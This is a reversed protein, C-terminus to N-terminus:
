WILLFSWWCECGWCVRWSWCCWFCKLMLFVLRMRVIFRVGSVFMFLCVM